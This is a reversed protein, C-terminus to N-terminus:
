HRIPRHNKRTKQAGVLLRKDSLALSFGFFDNPMPAPATIQKSETQTCALDATTSGACALFFATALGITLM